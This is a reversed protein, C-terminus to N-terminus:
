LSLFRTASRWVDAIESTGGRWGHHVDIQGHPYATESAYIAYLDQVYIIM